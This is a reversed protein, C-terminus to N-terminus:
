AGKKEIHKIGWKPIVPAQYNEMKELLRNIDTDIILAEKYAPKLFGKDIITQIFAFLEDYFGGINLIAVPSQHLGLQAWTLAEFLEELTGFSGPLAIIGDSLENMMAKREHMTEVLILKTLGEHQLEKEKLFHPLIGTVKGKNNIVGNAVAGMLGVKAGGYVLEIGKEALTKGLLYAQEEYISDFGTSSACFVAVKKM